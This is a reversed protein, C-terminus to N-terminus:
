QRLLHKVLASGRLGPLSQGTLHHAFNSFFSASVLLSAITEPPMAPDVRGLKQEARVYREIRGIAGRPGKALSTLRERFRELLAPESFLSSLMPVTRDHFSQLGELASLLNREVTQKGASEELAHLPTLMAPLNQELVALLLDVRSAFHVYIAGESCPVEEAIARTTVGSLGRERLLKEAAGIIEDKRNRKPKRQRAPSM